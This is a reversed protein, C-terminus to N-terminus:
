ERGGLYEPNPVEVMKGNQEVEMTKSHYISKAKAEVDGQAMRPNERRLRKLIHEIGPRRNSGHVLTTIEAM